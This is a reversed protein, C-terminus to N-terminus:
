GHTLTGTTLIIALISKSSSSCGSLVKAVSVYPKSASYPLIVDSRHPRISPGLIAPWPGLGYM